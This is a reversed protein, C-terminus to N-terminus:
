LMHCSQEIDTLVQICANCQITSTKGNPQIATSKFVSYGMYNKLKKERFKNNNVPYFRDVWSKAHEIIKSILTKPCKPKFCKNKLYKLGIDYDTYDECICRM